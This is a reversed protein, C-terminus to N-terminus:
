ALVEADSEKSPVFGHQKFFLIGLEARMPLPKGDRSARSIWAFLHILGEFDVVTGFITWRCLM